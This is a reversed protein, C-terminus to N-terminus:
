RRVPECLPFQTRKDEQAVGRPTHTRALSPPQAAAHLLLPTAPIPATEHDRLHKRMLKKHEPSETQRKHVGRRTPCLCPPRIVIASMVVCMSGCLCARLPHISLTCECISDHVCVYKCSERHKCARLAVLGVWHRWAARCRCLCAHKLYMKEGCMIEAEGTLGSCRPM